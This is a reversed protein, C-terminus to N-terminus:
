ASGVLEEEGEWKRERRNNNREKGWCLHKMWIAVPVWRQADTRHIMVGDRENASLCGWPVSRVGGM